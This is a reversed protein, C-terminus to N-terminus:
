RTCRFLPAHSFRSGQGQDFRALPSISALRTARRLIQSLRVFCALLMLLVICSDIYPGARTAITRTFPREVLSPNSSATCISRMEERGVRLELRAPSVPAPFCDPSAFMVPAGEVAVRGRSGTEFVRGGASGCSCGFLSRRLVVSRVRLGRSCRERRVRLRAASLKSALHVGPQGRVGGVTM